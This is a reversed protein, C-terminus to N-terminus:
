PQVRVRQRALAVVSRLDRLEAATFLRVVLLGIPLGAVVIATRAVLTWVISSMTVSLAAVCVVAGAGVIKILRGTEYPIPYARQSVVLFAVSQFAQGVLTGAAAGMVGFRPILAFEAALTVGAALATMMPFYKTEKAINLSTTPFWGAVQAAIAIALLPVVRAADQFKPDFLLRIVGDALVIMGVTLMVLIVLGYTALRGFLRAADPRSNFTDFAFPSWAAQFATPVIKLMSAVTAGLQYLGVHALKVAASGPILLPLVFRDAYAGAQYFLGYPVHPVGYHLAERGLPRSFRLAIMERYAPILVLTLAMTVVIDSLILGALGWRLGLVLVARLVLSAATRAFTFRVLRIAQERARYVTLPLFFFNSLFSNLVLLVFSVRFSPVSDWWSGGFGSAAILAVAILGNAAVLLTAITGALVRRAEESKGDFYMRLFAEDLGWRFVVKLLAECVLLLGFAGYEEPTLVRTYFPLLITNVVLFVVDASGYTVVQKTVRRVNDLM